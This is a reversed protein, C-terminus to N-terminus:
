LHIALRDLPAIHVFYGTVQSSGFTTKKGLRQFKIGGRHTGGSFRSVKFFHDQDVTQDCWRNM